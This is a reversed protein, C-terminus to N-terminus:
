DQALLELALFHQRFVGRPGSARQDTPLPRERGSSLSVANLVKEDGCDRRPGTEPAAVVEEGAFTERDQQSKEQWGKGQLGAAARPALGAAEGRRERQSAPSLSVEVM